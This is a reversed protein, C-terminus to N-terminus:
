KSEHKKIMEELLKATTHMSSSKKPKGLLGISVGINSTLSELKLKEKEVKKQEKELLKQADLELKEKQLIAIDVPPVNILCPAIILQLEEDTLDRLAKSNLGILQEWTM